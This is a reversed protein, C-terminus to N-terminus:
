AAPRCPAHTEPLERCFPRLHEESGLRIRGQPRAGRRRRNRGPIALESM